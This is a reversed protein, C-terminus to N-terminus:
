GAASARGARAKTAMRSESIEAWLMPMWRPASCSAQRERERGGQGADGARQVRVLQAEDRGVLEAQMCDMSSSSSTTMPPRPKTCPAKKPAMKRM